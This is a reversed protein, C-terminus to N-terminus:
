LIMFLPVHMLKMKEGTEYWGICKGDLLDDKYHNEYEPKGSEYFGKEFGDQKGFMLNRIVRMQGSEYLFYLEGTNIKLSDDIVRIAGSPYYYDKFKPHTRRISHNQKIEISLDFAITSVANFADEEIIKLFDNENVFYLDTIRGAQPIKFVDFGDLLQFLGYTRSKADLKTDVFYKELLFNVTDRLVGPEYYAVVEQVVKLISDRTVGNEKLLVDYEPTLLHEKFESEIRDLARLKQTQASMIVSIM